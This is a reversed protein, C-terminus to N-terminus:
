KLPIRAIVKQLSVYGHLLVGYLDFDEKSGGGRLIEKIKQIKEEIKKKIEMRKKENKIDGELDFIFDDAKKKKKKDELGFM